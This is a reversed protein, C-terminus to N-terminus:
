FITYYSVRSREILAILFLLLCNELYFLNLLYKPVEFQDPAIM